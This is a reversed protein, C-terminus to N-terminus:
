ILAPVRVRVRERLRSLPGSLPVHTVCDTKTGAGEGAQPLPYPHPSQAGAKVQMLGGAGVTCLRVHM